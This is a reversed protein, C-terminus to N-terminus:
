HDKEGLAQDVPLVEPNGLMVSIVSNSVSAITAKPLYPCFFSAM